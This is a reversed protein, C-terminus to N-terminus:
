RASKWGSDDWREEQATPATEKIQNDAPPHGGSALDQVKYNVEQHSKEPWRAPIVRWTAEGLPQIPNGRATRDNPNLLQPARSGPKARKNGDPDPVPRLTSEIKTGPESITPRSLKIEDRAPQVSSRFNSGFAPTSITPAAGSSTGTGFNGRDFSSPPPVTPVPTTRPIVPARDAPVVVGPGLTGTPPPAVRTQPTWFGGTGGPVITTTGPVVPLVPVTTSPVTNYYPVAAPACSGTSCSSGSLWPFLRVRSPQCQTGTCARQVTTPYATVPDYVTVPRYYTVPVQVVRTQYYFTPPVYNLRTQQGYHAYAEAGQTAGGAPSLAYGPTAPAYYAAVPPAYYAPRGAPAVAVGGSPYYARQQSAPAYFAAQPAAYAYSPAAGYYGNYYVAQGAPLGRVGGAHAPMASLAALLALAISRIQFGLSPHM